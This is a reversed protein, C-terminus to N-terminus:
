FLQDAHGTSSVLARVRKAVEEASPNRKFRYVEEGLSEAMKEDTVYQESVALLFQGAMERRLRGVLREVDTKRWFGLVELYICAGDARRVLQFDPIWVGDGLSIIAPEDHIEWDQVSKRFAEAFMTLDKPIYSGYDTLHSRLNDKNSLVFSKPETSRTSTWKVTARLDFSKCLLLHPLFCALQFGYRQTSSFLSLPGDLKLRYGEIENPVIECILRHFKIARFLQRYRTASEGRIDVEVKTARLLVAQALAVNYRHLLQEPTIDRFSVLRQEAKLDAFIGQELTEVTTGLQAAVTGLIATRDFTEHEQGRGRAAASALFLAERIQEPSPDSQVAFECRDELLKALGQHILSSPQDGLMERIDDDLRARTSGESTRFLELLREAVDLWEPDTPKLYLPVLKHRAHRVRVHKGSLM